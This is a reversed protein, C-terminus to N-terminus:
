IRQMVSAQEILAVLRLRRRLSSSALVDVGFTRRMLEAWSLGRRPREARTGTLIRQHHPMPPM